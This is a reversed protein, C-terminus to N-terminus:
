LHKKNGKQELKNEYIYIENGKDDIKTIVFKNINDSESFYESIQKLFELDSFTVIKIKRSSVRTIAYLNYLM